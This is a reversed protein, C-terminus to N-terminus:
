LKCSRKITEYIDVGRRGFEAIFPDPDISAEVPLVGKAQVNGRGLTRSGISLAIGTGYSVSSEKWKDSYEVTTHFVHQTKEGNKEGRVEVVYSRFDKKIEEKPLSRLLATILERPTAKIEKLKIHDVGSLDRLFKFMQVMEPGIAVKVTVKKIGKKIVHPLTAVESHLSYYCKVSGIRSDPFEFDERSFLPIKEFKENQFVVPEQTYQDLYTRSSYAFKIPLIPHLVKGGAIVHIEEVQDLKDAGYKALINTLGPALGCGLVATIGADSALENLKLQKLTMYYLGGLDIYHAGVEIAAKMVDLNYEYWTANAVVDVAKMGEVLGEHNTVDMHEVSLKQSKIEDVLQNAKDIAIDGIVVETVEPSEILDRVTVRGM